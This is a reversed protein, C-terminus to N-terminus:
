QLIDKIMKECILFIKKSNDNIQLDLIREIAASYGYKGDNEMKKDIFIAESIKSYDEPYYLASFLMAGIFYGRRKVFWVVGAAWTKLNPKSCTDQLTSIEHNGFDIIIERDDKYKVLDWLFMVNCYKTFMGSEFDVFYEQSKGDKYKQGRAYQELRNCSSFGYDEINKLLFLSQPWYDHVNSYNGRFANFYAPVLGFNGPAHSISFVEELDSGRLSNMSKTIDKLCKYLNSKLFTNISNQLSNYCDGGWLIKRDKVDKFAAISGFYSYEYVFGWLMQYMQLTFKCRGSSNDPDFNSKSGECFARERDMITLAKYTFFSLIKNEGIQESTFENEYVKRKMKPIQLKCDYMAFKSLGEQMIDDNIEEINGFIEKLYKELINKM